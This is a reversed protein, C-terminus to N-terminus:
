EGENEPDGYASAIPANCNACYMDPGEWYVDTAMAHWGSRDADKTERAILRFNDKACKACMCEGDQMYLAVPYGGPWAYPARIFEKVQQVITNRM